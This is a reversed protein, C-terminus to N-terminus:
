RRSQCCQASFRQQDFHCYENNELYAGGGHGASTPSIAATNGQILNDTLTVMQSQYIAIGGGLAVSGALGSATNSLITNQNLLASSREIGLGGAPTLLCSTSLSSLCAVNSHILNNAM